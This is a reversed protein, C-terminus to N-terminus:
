PEIGTDYSQTGSASSSYTYIIYPYSPNPYPIIPIYKPIYGLEREM